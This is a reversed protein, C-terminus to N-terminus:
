SDVFGWWCAWRQHELSRCPEPKIPGAEDRCRAIPDCCLCEMVRSPELASTVGQVPYRRFDHCSQISRSLRFFCAESFVLFVGSRSAFLDLRSHDGVQRVTSPDDKDQDAERIVALAGNSTREATRRSGTLNWGILSWFTKRRCGFACIGQSLSLGLQSLHQKSSSGWGGQRQCYKFL